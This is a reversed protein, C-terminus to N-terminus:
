LPSCLLSLSLFFLVCFSLSHAFILFLALLFPFAPRLGAARWAVTRSAVRVLRLVCSDISTNSCAAPAQQVLTPIRTTHRVM